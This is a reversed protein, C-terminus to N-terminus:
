TCRQPRNQRAAFPPGQPAPNAAGHHRPPEPPSPHALAGLSPPPSISSDRRTPATDPRGRLNHDPLAKCGRVHVALKDKWARRGEQSGAGGQPTLIEVYM